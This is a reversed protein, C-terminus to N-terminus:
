PAPKRRLAAAPILASALHAESLPLAAGADAGPLAVGTVLADAAIRSAESRARAIRSSLAAEVEADGDHGPRLTSRVFVEAAKYSSRVLPGSAAHAFGMELAAQQYDAFQEPTVYRAVPAHRPSPQLYQGLTVIDVGVARLDWLTELVEDDTEGIGVMISSKTFLRRPLRAGRQKARRLVELSQDYGCRADRITRTMARTVEVNHAFVDPGADVVADIDGGRGMFDGVLTEILIDDRQERLRQVTLAV